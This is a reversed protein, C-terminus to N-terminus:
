ASACIVTHVNRYHRKVTNNTYEKHITIHFSGYKLVGEFEFYMKKDTHDSTETILPM